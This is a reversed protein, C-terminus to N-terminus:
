LEDLDLDLEELARRAPERLGSNHLNINLLRGMLYELSLYYVRKADAENHARQTEIFRDIVHDRVALSVALWLERRTASGLHRALTLRLHRLISAKLEEVKGDEGGTEPPVMAAHETIEVGM